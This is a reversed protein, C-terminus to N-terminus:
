RVPPPTTRDAVMRTRDGRRLGALGFLGFLGIWGWNGRHHRYMPQTYPAPNNPNAPNPPPTNQAFATGSLVLATVLGLFTRKM